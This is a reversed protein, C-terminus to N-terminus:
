QKVVRLVSGDALRLSYIGARLSEIPVDQAPQLVFSMVNRGQMDTITAPTGNLAAATNTISVTSTAPVPSIMVSGGTGNRRVSVTQSYYGEGGGEMIKLRYFNVTSLPQEDYFAYDDGNGSGNISGIMEFDDANASREIRYLTGKTETATKWSIRNRSGEAKATFSELKVPLPVNDNAGYAFFGSFGTVDFTVEWRSAAANWVINNDALNISVSRSGVGAWGTYTGPLGDASASTGHQQTIRLNVKNNAADTSEAPLDPATGNNTNYDTFDAQTFYLTVTATATNANTAPNIDYYRRVYKKGAYAPATTKVYVKATTNGLAAGTPLVTAVARCAGDAYYGRSNATTTASIATKDTSALYVTTADIAPSTITLDNTNAAGSLAPASGNIRIRYGAGTATNGPITVPIFGSTATGTLTGITLPSSFDGSSNSLQATFVNGATIAGGTYTYPISLSAGACISAPSFSGITTTLTGTVRINDYAFQNTLDAVTLVLKFDVVQGSAMGPLTFDYDTLATSLTQTGSPLSSMSEPNTERKMSGGATPTLVSGRFAAFINWTGTSGGTRYYIKFTDRNAAWSTPYNDDTAANSAGLLIKFHLDGYNAANVQQTILYGNKLVSPNSLSSTNEGFWYQANSVGNFTVFRSGSQYFQNFGAQNTRVFAIGSTPNFRNSNYRTGEGDTTFDETFPLTAAANLFVNVAITRYAPNGSAIGDTVTFSLQRPLPSADIADTNQYKVSRLAAQYSALSATGTLTLIGSTSNYAGSIGNANVFSLVDESNDFNATLKITAGTLTTNDPDTITITSTVFTAAAGENYSLSTTELNSLTPPTNSSPTGFIRINDFAFEESLGDAYMMVRVDLTSGNGPVDFIFDTMTNSIRPSGADAADFSTGNLNADQRLFGGIGATQNDGSFRAITTWAATGFRAQIVLSDNNEWNLGTYRGEFLGIRVKIDSYGTTPASQLTVVGPARLINNAPGRVGEGAWYWSGDLTGGSIGTNPNFAFATNSTPTSTTVINANTGRLFYQQNTTTASSLYITTNAADVKSLPDGVAYEFSERLLTDPLVASANLSIGLPLVATLLYLLRKKM